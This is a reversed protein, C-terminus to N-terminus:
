EDNNSGTISLELEGGSADVFLRTGDTFEVAVEGVRHRWVQRVSKGELMATARKAEDDLDPM